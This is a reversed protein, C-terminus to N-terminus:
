TCRKYWSTGHSLHHHKTSDISSRAAVTHLGFRLHIQNFRVNSELHFAGLVVSSSNDNGCMRADMRMREQGLDEEM